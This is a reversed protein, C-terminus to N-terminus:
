ESLFEIEEIIQRAPQFTLSSNRKIETEALSKINDTHTSLHHWLLRMACYRQKEDESEALKLALNYSDPIKRLLKHVLIDAVETSPIDDTWKIADEFAINSPDILMPAILMSERTTRNNWLDRALGVNYGIEAAIEEIQPLVLGFVIKFPSGAKRMTDAIVGNRMAFFRRKLTQMENFQDM